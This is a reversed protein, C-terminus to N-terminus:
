QRHAIGHEVEMAHGFPPSTKARPSIAPPPWCSGRDPCCQGHVHGDAEQAGGLGTIMQPRPWATRGHPKVADYSITTVPPLLRGCCFGTVYNMTLAGVKDSLGWDSWPTRGKEQGIVENRGAYIRATLSTHFVCKRSRILSTGLDNIRSIRLTVMSAQDDGKATAQGVALEERHLLQLLERKTLGAVFVGEERSLRAAFGFAPENKNNSM